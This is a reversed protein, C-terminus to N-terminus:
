NRQRNFLPLSLLLIAGCAALAARLSLLSGIMGIPPGGTIEGIANVQGYVSFMTARTEPELQQNLWAESIPRAAACLANVLWFSVVALYFNGALAFAMIGMAILGYALRLARGAAASDGLNVHRRVIENLGISLISAGLAIISFWTVAPMGDILPLTFTDLVHKQWLQDFGESHFAFIFEILLILLLVQHGRILRLGAGLTRFLARWTAPKSRKFGTEPMFLLMFLALGVLCAGAALFPLRLSVSALLGSVIIGIISGVARMQAARAFASGARAAGIEDAIWAQTAGSIFTAGIGAIVQALLIASFFPFVGEILLGVGLLVLGIIISLRRSYLDAVIGTPIEFLFITTEFTTAVLVIQFPDLGLAAAYYVGYITITIQFFLSSAGELLLYIFLAGFRRPYATASM